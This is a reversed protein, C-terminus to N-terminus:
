CYAAPLHRKGRSREGHDRGCARAGNCILRASIRGRPDPKRATPRRPFRGVAPCFGELRNGAPQPLDWIQRSGLFGVRSATPIAERLIQLRKGWIELGAEVSVGTINGGPRALSAVIGYPVPDAMSSVVPIKDTAAKFSLVLRSSSAVILDPKARVVDRALEAYRDERGEGSYREVILNRGEVYGLRRLEQFFARWHPFSSTETLDAVPSATAIVAIRHVKAPQQARAHRLTAAVLLGAIFERRRM